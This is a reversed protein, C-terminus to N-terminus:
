AKVYFHFVKGNKPFIVKGNKVISRCFVERYGPRPSKKNEVTDGKQPAVKRPSAGNSLLLVAAGSLPPPRYPSSSLLGCFSPWRSVAM